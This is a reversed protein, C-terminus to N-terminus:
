SNWGVCPGVFDNWSTLKSNWGVNPEDGGPVVMSNWGVNPQPPILSMPLTALEFIGFALVLLILIIFSVQMYRRM